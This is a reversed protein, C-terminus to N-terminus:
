YESNRRRHHNFLVPYNDKESRPLHASYTTPWWHMFDINHKICLATLISQDHRNEAFTEVNKLKSPSDDILGPFQCYLLWEKVFDKTRQNVRFFIVTAQVQRQEMDWKGPIITELIDMKSWEANRHGNTFLFIDGMSDIIPAIPAIFEIGSDAYVLIDDDKSHLISQYIIYPKWLWHGVGRPLNWIQDNYEKFLQGISDPNHSWCNDIGYKLSSEICLAQSKKMQDDAFCVLRIM